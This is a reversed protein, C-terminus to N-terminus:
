KDAEPGFILKWTVPDYYYMLRKAFEKAPIKLAKAYSEMAEPPVRTHGTEIQSIMTYYDFGVDAALDRQTKEVELRQERLWKGVEKRRQKVDNRDYQPHTYM